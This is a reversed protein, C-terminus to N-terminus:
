KPWAELYSRKQGRCGIQPAGQIHPGTRRWYFRSGIGSERTAPMRVIEVWRHTAQLVTKSVSGVLSDPLRGGARGVTSPYYCGSGGHSSFRLSAGDVTRSGAVRKPLASYCDSGFGGRNCVKLGSSTLRFAGQKVSHQRSLVFKSAHFPNLSM